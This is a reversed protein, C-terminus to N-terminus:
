RSEVSQPVLPPCPQQLIRSFFDRYLPALRDPHWAQARERVALSCRDYYAADDWLRIIAEVWPAAEEATPVDRSEPTYRAPIDFLFGSSGVTEPLAGRNSALVPIGNLMAEAAVLGFSELWLSPLLLLKTRTFVAPYFDRPDPTFPMTTINRGDCGYLGSACALQGDGGPQLEGRLHPALGLAPNKLADGRSRGQTVLLPIDPRRRALERAIRAFVYVGKNEEPNIFTVYKGDGEPLPSPHPRDLTAPVTGTGDVRLERSRDIALPQPRLASPVRLNGAVKRAAGVEAEAWHVINPLVSCELGLKERYYRRSFESPVIIYDAAAFAARDHYSFNHLWFVIKAGHRKALHQVAISVPDGGYTVVIDPRNKRLFIDCAALFAKVEEPGFWAGRTSANEFLTVPVNGEVLFILRANIGEGNPLPSPHPGAPIRAKRVQYKVGRRFLQEQILGERPEDLRTGCFAMCQFGQAALLKLADRTATAAGNTFDVLCHPSVLAIRSRALNM